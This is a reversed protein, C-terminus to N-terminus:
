KDCPRLFNQFHACFKKNLMKLPQVLLLIQEKVQKFAFVSSFFVPSMKKERFLDFVTKVM